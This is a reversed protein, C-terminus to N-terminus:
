PIKVYFPFFYMEHNQHNSMITLLPFLIMVCSSLERNEKRKKSNKKRASKAKEKMEKKKPKYESRNNKSENKM